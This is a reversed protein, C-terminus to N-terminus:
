KAAAPASPASTAGDFPIKGPVFRPPSKLFFYPDSDLCEVAVEFVDQAGICHILGRGLPATKLLGKSLLLAQFRSLDYEIGFDLYRVASVPHGPLPKGDRLVPTEYIKCYLHPVGYQQEVYHIYTMPQLSVGFFLLKGHLLRLRHWPSTVGYGSLSDSGCLVEAHQGIAAISQLPNCSRVRGPLANLYQSFSGLSLSVPSREVDFPINHRAYEYFYAPVALTGAARQLADLYFPLWEDPNTLGDPIGFARLDSHMLVVDSLDVDVAALAEQVGATTLPFIM